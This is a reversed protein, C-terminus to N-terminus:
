SSASCNMGPTAGLAMRLGFERINQSVAYSMVGYLGIGALALALTGFIGLLTVAIQQASTSREVQEQMPLLESPALNPDLAHIERVLNPAIAAASQSSKIFVGVVSSASQRLPVYYLPRPIQLLSSYKVDKVVGIVTMWRGNSQLRRGLPDAGPWYRAALAETVVAVRAATDEDARSFDRGSVLPIELTSFYGPTVANFDSEPQENPAPLYGDVVIPSSDYPRTTFPTSRAFAVSQVGPMARIRELAQDEVIRARLTDYGAAFMNLGTLMVGDTNFGPSAARIQRLSSLLLGGGVLLVFSLSVQLM